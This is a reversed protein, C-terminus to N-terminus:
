LPVEEITVKVIRFKTQPQYKTRVDPLCERAAEETAVTTVPNWWGKVAEIYRQIEYKVQPKMM